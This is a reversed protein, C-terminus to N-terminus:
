NVYPDSLEWRWTESGSYVNRFHNYTGDGRFWYYDSPIVRGVMTEDHKERNWRDLVDYALDLLEEDVPHEESYGYFQNPATIVDMISDAYGADFRNLVVWMIAAQQCKTSVSGYVPVGRGEGWVLKALAIADEDTYLRPWQAEVDDGPLSGDDKKVTEEQEEILAEVNKRVGVLSNDVHFVDNQLKEIEYQLLKIERALCAGVVLNIFVLAMIITEAFNNNKM